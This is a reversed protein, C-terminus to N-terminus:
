SPLRGCFGMKRFYTIHTQLYYHRSLPNDFIDFDGVICEPNNGFICDVVQQPTPHTDSSSCNVYILNNFQTYSETISTSPVVTVIDKKHVVRLYKRSNDQAPYASGMVQDVWDVFPENGLLPQGMTIVQLNKCGLDLYHLGLLLAVSGGLSHGLIILEYDDDDIEEAIYQHIISLTRSYYDHFGKHVRCKHGCFPLEKGLNSYGIM